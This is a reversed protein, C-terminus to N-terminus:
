PTLFINRFTLQSDIPVSFQHHLNKGATEPLKYNNELEIKGCINPSYGM